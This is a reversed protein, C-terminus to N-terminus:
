FTHAARQSLPTLLREVATGRSGKLLVTDGPALSAAVASMWDAKPDPHITIRDRHEDLNAAAQAYLPGVCVIRDLPHGESTRAHLARQLVETHMAVEDSGLELMDGLVAIRRQGQAHTIIDIAAITSEPNANYADVLLRIGAISQWNLRMAPARASAIRGIIAQPAVGCEAALISAAAANLASHAGPLPVTVTGITQIACRISSEGRELLEIRVDANTDFGYTVVRRNPALRDILGPAHASAVVLGGEPVSQSLSAKEDAVGDISGLGELHSRGVAIIACADPEIIDGLARIEGPGSTGVECIVFASGAPANLLTLPVGLHNNFSRDPLWAPAEPSSCAAALLNCTTTKGNSGTVALVLSSALATRRYATAAQALAAVVDPVILLPATASSLAEPVRDVVACCAGANLAHEVYDHGDVHEGRLAFFVNGPRVTRSDISAGSWTKAPAQDLWRAGEIAHALAEPTDPRQTNM